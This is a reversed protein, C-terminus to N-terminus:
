FWHKRREIGKDVDDSAAIVVAALQSNNSVKTDPTLGGIKTCLTTVWLLELYGAM